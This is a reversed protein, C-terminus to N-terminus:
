FIDNTSNLTEKMIPMFAASKLNSHGDYIFSPCYNLAFLNANKGVTPKFGSSPSTFNHKKKMIM